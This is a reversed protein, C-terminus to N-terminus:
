VETVASKSRRFIHLVEVLHLIMDIYAVLLFTLM